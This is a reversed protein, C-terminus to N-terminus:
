FVPAFMRCFNEALVRWHARAARAEPTIRLAKTMDLEFREALREATRDDYLALNVEFNLYFSRADLNASGVLSWRGDVTLTKAHLTGARYEYIEVGARLLVEYDSRGAFITWPKGGTGPVLLRVRVGRWAAAELAQVIQIPPVFYGTTLDITRQAATIATFFLNPLGRPLSREGAPTPGSPGGPVCQVIASGRSGTDPYLNDQGEVEGLVAGTAFYWDEAFVQQLQLAGPGEVRLHTDRWWGRREKAAKGFCHRWGGTRALGLYEDGINMGGTFAVRGDVVVIKRHNRLNLSWRERFGAGPLFSAVEAGADRLPKLWRKTLWLSGIGDYLFRVTVGEAAKRVLLDRLATGTRDPKWIYYELHISSTAAEIERRILGLTRNTDDLTEVDNGGVPPYRGVATQLRMLTRDPEQTSESAFVRHETLSPTVAEIRADGAAKLEARRNVRNVGFILFLLGGLYPILVIAMIWAVTSAPSDKKLLLVWRVLALTLLYGCLSLVAALWGSVPLWDFM